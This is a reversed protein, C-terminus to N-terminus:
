TLYNESSQIVSYLMIGGKTYAARTYRGNHYFCVWFVKRTVFFWRDNKANPFSISFKNQIKDNIADKTLMVGPKIENLRVSIPLSVAALPHKIVPKKPVQAYSATSISTTFLYVALTSLLIKKM